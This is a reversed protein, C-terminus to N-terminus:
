HHRLFEPEKTDDSLEDKKGCVLEEGPLLTLLQRPILKLCLSFSTTEENHKNKLYVYLVKRLHRNISIDKQKIPWFQTM